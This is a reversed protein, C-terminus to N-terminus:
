PGLKVVVHERDLDLLPDRLVLTHASQLIRFLWRARLREPAHDRADTPAGAHALEMRMLEAVAERIPEESLAAPVDRRQARKETM